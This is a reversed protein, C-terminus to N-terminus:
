LHYEGKAYLGLRTGQTSGWNEESVRVGHRTKRFYQFLPLLTVCVVLKDM